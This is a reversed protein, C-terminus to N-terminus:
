GDGGSCRKQKNGPRFTRTLFRRSIHFLHFLFFLLLVKKFTYFDAHEFVPAASVGGSPHIGDSPSFKSPSRLKFTHSYVSLEAYIFETQPTGVQTHANREVGESQAIHQKTRKTKIEYEPMEAERSRKRSILGRTKLTTGLRPAM